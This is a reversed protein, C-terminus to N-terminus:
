RKKNSKGNSIFLNRSSQKFIPYQLLEIASPRDQWRAAGMKEITNLLTSSYSTLDMRGEVEIGVDRM